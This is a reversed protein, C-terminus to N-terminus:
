FFTELYLKQLIVGQSRCQRCFYSVIKKYVPFTIKSIGVSIISRICVIYYIYLYIYFFRNYDVNFNNCQTTTFLLHYLKSRFQLLCLVFLLKHTTTQKRILSGSIVSRVSFNDQQSLCENNCMAIRVIYYQMCEYMFEMIFSTFLYFMITYYLYFAAVLCYVM